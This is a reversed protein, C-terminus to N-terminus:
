LHIEFSFWLLLKHYKITTKNKLQFFKWNILFFMLYRIFSSSGVLIVSIEPVSLLTLLFFLELRIILRPCLLVSGHSCYFFVHIIPNLLSKNPYSWLSQTYFSPWDQATGQPPPSSRIVSKDREGEREEGERLKEVLWQHHGQNLYLLVRCDTLECRVVEEVIFLSRCLPKM